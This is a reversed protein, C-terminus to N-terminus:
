KDWVVKEIRDCIEKDDNDKAQAALDNVSNELQNSFFRYEACKDKIEQPVPTGGSVEREVMWAIGTNEISIRCGYKINSIQTKATEDVKRTDVYEVLVGNEYREYRM